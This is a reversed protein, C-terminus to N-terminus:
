VATSFRVQRLAKAFAEVAMARKGSTTAAVADVAKSMLM